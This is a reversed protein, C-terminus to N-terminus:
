VCRSTYLLCCICWRAYNKKSSVPNMIGHVGYFDLKTYLTCIFFIHILSLGYVQEMQAKCSVLGAYGINDDIGNTNAIVAESQWQPTSGEMGLHGIAIVYDAGMAIATDVYNQVNDYLDQGNNGQCFGYIYNRDRICM